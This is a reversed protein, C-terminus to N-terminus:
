TRASGATVNPAQCGASALRPVQRARGAIAGHVHLGVHQRLCATAPLTRCMAHAGCRDRGPARAGREVLSVEQSHPVAPCRAPAGSAARALRGRAPACGNPAGGYSAGAAAPPPHYHAPPGQGSPDM